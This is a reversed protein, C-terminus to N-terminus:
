SVSSTACARIRPIASGSRSRASSTSRCGSRRGRRDRFAHSLAGVLPLGRLPPFDEIRGPRVRRPRGTGRCGAGRHRPFATEDMRRRARRCRLRWRSAPVRCSSSSARARLARALPAVDAARRVHGRRRDAGADAGPGRAAAGVLTPVTYSRDARANRPCRGRPGSARSRSSSWPSAICRPPSRRLAIRRTAPRSSACPRSGLAVGLERALELHGCHIPDFTGGLIGLVSNM